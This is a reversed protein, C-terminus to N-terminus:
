KKKGRRSEHAEQQQCIETAKLWIIKKKGKLAMALCITTAVRAMQLKRGSCEYFNWIYTTNQVQQTIKNLRTVNKDTIGKKESM